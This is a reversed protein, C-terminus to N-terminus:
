LAYITLMHEYNWHWMDKYKACKQKTARLLDYQLLITEWNIDSHIHAHNHVCIVGTSFVYTWM